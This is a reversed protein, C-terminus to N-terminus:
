STKNQVVSQALLEAVRNKEIVTAKLTEIERQYSNIQEVYKTEKSNVHGEIISAKTLIENTKGTNENLKVNTRLAAVINVIVIGLATIVLVIDTATYYMKM